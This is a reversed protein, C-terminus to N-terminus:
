NISIIRENLENDDNSVSSRYKLTIKGNNDVRMDATPAHQLQTNNKLTLEKKENESYM